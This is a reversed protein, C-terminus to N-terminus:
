GPSSWTSSALASPDSELESLEEDVSAMHDAPMVKDSAFVLLRTGAYSEKQKQAISPLGHLVMTYTAHLAMQTWFPSECRELDDLRLRVLRLHVIKPM